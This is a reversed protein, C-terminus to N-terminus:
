KFPFNKLKKLKTIRNYGARKVASKGLVANFITEESLFEEINELQTIDEESFIFDEINTERKQKNYPCVEQCIDCGAILGTLPKSIIEPFEKKSEITHYSLCLNSNILGEQMIAHYPCAEICRKCEGCQSNLPIPDDLANEWSTFIEGIFFFSGEKPHILLGNKGIFGLGAQHAWYREAIPASDTFVRPVFNICEKSLFQIIPKVQKKIVRHYDNKTIYRSFYWLYHAPLTQFYPVLFVIISKTGPHLQSPKKRFVDNKEIWHMDAHYASKRWYDFHNWQSDSCSKASLVNWHQIGVQAFLDNLIKKTTHDIIM